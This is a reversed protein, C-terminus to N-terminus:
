TLLEPNLFLSSYAAPWWFQASGYLAFVVPVQMSVVAAGWSRTAASSFHIAWFLLAAGGLLSAFLVGERLSMEWFFGAGFM